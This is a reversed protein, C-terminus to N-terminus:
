PKRLVLAAGRARLEREIEDTAYGTMSAVRSRPSIRAIADLLRWGEAESRLRLDALVIPFFEAALAEEASERDLAGTAEFDETALVAILGEVIGPDDDVVLVKTMGRERVPM